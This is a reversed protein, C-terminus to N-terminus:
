RGLLHRHDVMICRDMVVAIGAAELRRAADAHRIGVQMWVLRPAAAVCPDVLEPIAESRRFVNVIDVPGTAAVASALDPWVREGLVPEDIGPHVPVITYGAGQMYASVYHAPRAPNRGLGIVAIRRASALHDRLQAADLTM